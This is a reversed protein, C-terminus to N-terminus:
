ASAGCKGDVFMPGCVQTPHGFPWVMCDLLGHKSYKGDKVSYAHSPWVMGLRVCLESTEIPFSQSAPNVDSNFACSTVILRLPTIIMWAGLSLLFPNHSIGSM